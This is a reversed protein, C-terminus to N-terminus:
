RPNIYGVNVNPPGYFGGGPHPGARADPRWLKAWHRGTGRRHYQVIRVMKAHAIGAPPILTTEIATSGLAADKGYLSESATSLPSTSPIPSAAVNDLPAERSSGWAMDNDGLPPVEYPELAQTPRDPDASSTDPHPPALLLFGVGFFIGVIATAVAGLSVLYLLPRSDTLVSTM